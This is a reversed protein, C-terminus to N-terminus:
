QNKGMEKLEESITSVQRVLARAAPQSNIRVWDMAPGSSRILQAADALFPLAMGPRACSAIMSISLLQETPNLVLGQGVGILMTKTAAWLVRERASWLRGSLFLIFGNGDHMPWLRRAMNRMAAIPLPLRTAAQWGLQQLCRLTALAQGARVWLTQSGVPRCAHHKFIRQALAAGDPLLVPIGADALLKLAAGLSRFNTENAVWTHRYIGRLRELALSNNEVASVGYTLNSYILPLLMYSGPDIYAHELDTLEVWERWAALASEKRLLAAKLLLEQPPILPNM